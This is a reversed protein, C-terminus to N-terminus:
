GRAARNFVDCPYGGLAALSRPSWLRIIPIDIQFEAM